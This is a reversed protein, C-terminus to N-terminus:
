DFRAFQGHLETALQCYALHAEYPDDFFGISILKNDHRIQAHWKKNSGSWSVGKYGSKNNSYKTSNAKNQSRNAIRLNQRRNDLKNMNIHDCFEDAELQRGIIRELIIRHLNMYQTEGNETIERRAYFGSTHHKHALWNFNALDADTHDIITYQGQTLSITISDESVTPKRKIIRESPPKLAKLIKNRETQYALECTKCTKRFGTKSYKRQYWFESTLPFEHGCKTCIQMTYDPSM